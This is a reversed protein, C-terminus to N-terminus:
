AAFDSAPHDATLRRLPGGAVPVAYLYTRIVTDRRTIGSLTIETGDPAIDYNGSLDMWDFWLEPEPTLDRLTGRALDYLFLHPVEGTTLWQDWFRFVRDETVHAKVPDKERRELDAATAVPPLHGTLVMAGVVIGSGDPLWRPDFVGLPLSTVCRPEGGDLPMVHLQAKGKDKRRTFALQRGDPSVAPEASSFEDSTLPRADGALPVWWLRSRSENKELDWTTVPVVCGTGEPHPSPTGVRPVKWLDEATMPRAGPRAAYVTTTDAAPATMRPI